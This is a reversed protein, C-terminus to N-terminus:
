FQLNCAQDCQKCIFTPLPAPTAFPAPGPVTAGAATAPVPATLCVCSVHQAHLLPSKKHSKRCQYWGVACYAGYIAKPRQSLVRKYTHIGECPYELQWGLCYNISTKSKTKAGLYPHLQFPFM